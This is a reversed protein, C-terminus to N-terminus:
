RRWGPAPAQSRRRASPARAASVAGHVSVRCRGSSRARVALCHHSHAAPPASSAACKAAHIGDSRKVETADDVARTAVCGTQAANSARARPTRKGPRTHAPIPTASTPMVTNVPTSTARSARESM